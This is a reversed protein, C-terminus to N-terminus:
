QYDLIQPIPYFGTNHLVELQHLYSYRQKAYYSVSQLKEGDFYKLNSNSIQKRQLNLIQM